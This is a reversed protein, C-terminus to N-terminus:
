LHPAALAALRGPKGSAGWGGNAAGFRFGAAGRGALRLWDYISFRSAMPIYKCRVRGILMWYVM